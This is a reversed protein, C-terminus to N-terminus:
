RGDSGDLFGGLAAFLPAPAEIYPVHGCAPLAVLPAGIRRATDRASEIPIPDDEGHVVLAPVRLADLRPRLDYDGLSQWAAEEARQKILFPTLELARRPDHFYGAVALAFRARRDRPDLTARLAEVEPRRGAAALRERMAARGAASAPAPSILALREVREPHDLAWALALLGGWSYGVVTLQERGLRARVAELDAVHEAVGGFPAGPSLPSRGGGRQDYYLLRRRGPSALADLQPRLYDHSAGPGGHLIAVVEDGDGLELAFLSAGPVPIQHESSM